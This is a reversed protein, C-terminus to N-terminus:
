IGVSQVLDAVYSCKIFIQQMDSHIFPYIGGGDM